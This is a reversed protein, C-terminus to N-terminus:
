RSATRQAAGASHGRPSGGLSTAVALPRRTAREAGTRDRPSLIPRQSAARCIRAFTRRPEPTRAARCGKSSTSCAGAPKRGPGDAVLRHHSRRRHNTRSGRGLSLPRESFRQIESWPFLRARPVGCRSQALSPEAAGCRTRAGRGALRRPCVPPTHPLALPERYGLLSEFAELQLPCLLPGPARGCFGAPDSPPM